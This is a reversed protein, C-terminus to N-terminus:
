FKIKKVLKILIKSDLQLRWIKDPSSHKNKNKPGRAWKHRTEFKPKSGQRNKLKDLRQIM